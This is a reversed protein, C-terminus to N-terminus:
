TGRLALETELDAISGKLADARVEPEALERRAHHLLETWYQVTDTHVPHGRLRRASRVSAILNENASGHLEM